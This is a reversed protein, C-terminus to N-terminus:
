QFISKLFRQLQHNIVKRIPESHALILKVLHFLEFPILRFFLFNISTSFFSSFYRVVIALFPETFQQNLHQTEVDIGSLWCGYGPHSHYWGVVQEKNGSRSYLDAYRTMYEYAETQANVRTETGSFLMKYNCFSTKLLHCVKLQFLLFMLSLFHILKLEAKFCEWLKSIAVQVLMLLWKLFLLLQFKSKRFVIFINTAKIITIFIQFM